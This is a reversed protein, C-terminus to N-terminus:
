RADENKRGKYEEIADKAETLKELFDPFACVIIFLMFLLLFICLLSLLIWAVIM